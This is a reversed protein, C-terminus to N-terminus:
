GSTVIVNNTVSLQMELFCSASWLKSMANTISRTSSLAVEIVVVTPPICHNGQADGSYRSVCLTM